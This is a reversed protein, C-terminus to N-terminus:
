YGYKLKRWDITAVPAEKGIQYYSYLNKLVIGEAKTSIKIKSFNLFKFYELNYFPECLNIKELIKKREKLMLGGLFEGELFIIDFVFIIPKIRKAFVGPIGNRGKESFLECDLLTDKPLFNDVIDILYSLRETWNPKKELRRGWFEVKNNYKIVQMRWGDIKEEYIWEGKLEEGFYPIPQMLFVPGELKM